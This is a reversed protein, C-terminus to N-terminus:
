LGVVLFVLRGSAFNESIPLVVAESPPEEWSRHELANVLSPDLNQIHVNRQTRFIV